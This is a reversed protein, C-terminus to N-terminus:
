VSFQKPFVREWFAIGGFAVLCVFFKSMFVWWIGESPGIRVNIFYAGVIILAYGLLRNIGYPIPYYKRGLLYCVVSMSGYAALTAWASGLYGFRPITFVNVLLTILAGIGTFLIAFRTQKTIKFWISLNLYAASFVYAMLLIPVVELGEWYDKGIFTKDEGFIGFFNFSVIEKDYSSVLLFGGLVAIM